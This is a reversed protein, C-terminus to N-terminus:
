ESTYGRRFLEATLAPYTSVDELGVPVYNIGDFDSGYGVHDVGAVSVIHDIHDAVQSLTASDSCSVFPPYFNVMVVGGNDPLRALVDDPVNRPHDCLARASSHSFMVQLCCGPTLTRGVSSGVRM